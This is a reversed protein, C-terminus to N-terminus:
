DYLPPDQYEPAGEYEPAPDARAAEVEAHFTLENNWRAEQAQEEEEALFDRAPSGRTSDPVIEDEARDVEGIEVLRGEHEILMHIPEAAMRASDVLPRARPLGNSVWCTLRALNDTLNGVTQVLGNTLTRLEAHSRALDWRARREDSLQTRLSEIERELHQTELVNRENWRESRERTEVGMMRVTERDRIGKDVLAVIRRDLDEMKVDVVSSDFRENLSALEDMLSTGIARAYGLAAELVLDLLPNILSSVM